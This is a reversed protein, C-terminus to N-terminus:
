SNYFRRTSPGEPILKGSSRTKFTRKYYEQWFSCEPQELSAHTWQMEPLGEVSPWIEHYHKFIAKGEHSNCVSAGLLFTCPKALQLCGNSSSNHHGKQATWVTPAPSVTSNADRRLYLLSNLSVTHGWKMWEILVMQLACVTPQSKTKLGIERYSEHISEAETFKLPHSLNRQSKQIVIMCYKFLAIVNNGLDEGWPCKLEKSFPYPRSVRIRKERYISDLKDDGKQVSCFM